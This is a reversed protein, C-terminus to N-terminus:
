TEVGYLKVIFTSGIVVSSEVSIEGGLIDIVKKVLALGLGNGEGSRSTDSQYFKDFIHAGTERSMGIGNDSIKLIACNDENKLSIKIKGGINTFKIANSILNNWIIELFTEDCRILMDDIDCELQIDKEQLIDEYELINERLNESIDIEKNEKVIEQNELKNLKLMNTILNNLRKSADFLIKSYQKRTDSSLHEDGLAIAYNQIISLPTKIEHSVNAVFDTRLVETKSLEIAMKNINDLIVDYEDYKDLSHRPESKVSFDGSAIRETTELITKVPREVTIKRRIIDIITVILTLIFMNALTIIAIIGNQGNFKDSVYAFLLISIVAVFIVMLFFGLYGTISFQTKRYSKRSKGNSKDSM